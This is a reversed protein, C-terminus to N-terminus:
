YSDICPDFPHVLSLIIHLYENPICLLPWTLQIFSMYIYIEIGGCRHLLLPCHTATSTAENYHVFRQSHCIEWLFYMAYTSVSWRPLKFWTGLYAFCLLTALMPLINLILFGHQWTAGFSVIHCCLGQQDNPSHSWAACNWLAICLWLIPFKITWIGDFSYLMLKQKATIKTYFINKSVHVTSEKM